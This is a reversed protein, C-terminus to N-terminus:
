AVGSIVQRERTPSYSGCDGLWEWIAGGLGGTGRLHQAMTAPQETGVRKMTRVKKSPRGKRAGELTQAIEPRVRSAGVPAAVLSKKPWATAAAPSKLASPCGSTM